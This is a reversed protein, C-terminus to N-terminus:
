PMLQDAAGAGVRLLWDVTQELRLRRSGKVCVLDGSQLVGALVGQLEANDAVAHLQGRLFGAAAAAEVCEVAFEGCFVAVDVASGVLAAAVERHLRRGEPGLELMDGLVLIRRGGSWDGLARLCALASAPSCNYTEDLIRWSGATLLRGRGRDPRFRLLGAAIQRASLGAERGVSVAAAACLLLQQGGEYEFEDAGSCFRIRGGEVGRLACRGSGEAQCGFYVVRASTARSMACVEAQDANLFVCGSGPIAEVLEQKTAQVASLSGFSELHCASVRTIVGWEPCALGCLFRIDGVRGAGLELVAAGHAPGLELLTLPVGIENNYNAPSQLVSWQEGLVAHIMQRTTTKGVSGTVGVCLAASQQRNWSALRQLAVLSDRVVIVDPGCVGFGSGEGEGDRPLADTLVAIAGGAAAASVFQVGHRQQGRLAVFLSGPEVRGSDTVVREIRGAGLGPVGSASTGGFWVRLQGQVRESAESVTCAYM